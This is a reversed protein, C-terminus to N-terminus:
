CWCRSWVSMGLVSCVWWVRIGCFYGEGSVSTSGQGLKPCIFGKMNVQLRRLCVCMVM